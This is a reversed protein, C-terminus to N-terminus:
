ALSVLLLGYIVAGHTFDLEQQLPVIMAHDNGINVLSTHLAERISERSKPKVVKLANPTAVAFNRGHFNFFFRFRFAFIINNSCNKTIKEESCNTLM